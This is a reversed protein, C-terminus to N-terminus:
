CVEKIKTLILNQEEVTLDHFLPLCLVRKSIDESIPCEDKVPLYNLTNLSPYFYRRVIINNKELHKIVKLLKIETEFLIPFYAYNFDIESLNYNMDKIPYDLFKDKYFLWQKKRKKCIEEIFNLNVLGMAACLENMKGNIGVGDFTNPSTHGFNRLLLLKKYTKEDQCVIAGGEVSHFLKTAHFSITSIDGFNLIDSKKFKTSFGHANDYIVPIGYQVSIAKIEDFNCPYGYVNTALIAKTDSTILEKIKLPDINLTVPDIDVFRPICNEWIITSTTAVYSYPTTIIEGKLKLAKIAIQLAITGNSVLVLYPVNFHKKLNQELQTVMPGHNTFWKNTFIESVKDQYMELPPSFPKTATIMSNFFLYIQIL